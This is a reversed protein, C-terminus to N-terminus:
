RCLVFEPSNLLAWLIEGYGSRRQSEDAKQDLYQALATSEVETPERTLVARYLTKIREDQDFFPSEVVARLLRSRDLDIADATMRGNMLLLAQPIGSAYDEPSDGVSESLRGVLQSRQGTWRPSLRNIRGVPLLLSQELSDFVQDPSIVKLSRVFREGSAEAAITEPDAKATDTANVEAAYWSSKCIAAVLRSVDFGDDAFRQGFEDLFARQEPEALDLNEVDPYLGRGVLVQWFRNVATSSFNPNEKSTLWEALRVRTARGPDTLPSSEWLFKATYTAGEHRIKGADVGGSEGEVARVDGYFAALGWFDNQKWDTFPHDHCQACDIQVGLAVRSLHGAYNEPLGGVLQFYGGASQASSIQILERIMQDYPQGAKFASELWQDLQGTAGLVNTGAPLLVRRWHKALTGALLRAYDDKRTGDQFVISDVLIKRRDEGLSEFDRLESVSPVRGLLDLYVRRAFTLDDCPEPPKGWAAQGRTDIWRSFEDGLSDAQVTSGGLCIAWAIMVITLWASDSVQRNGTSRLPM